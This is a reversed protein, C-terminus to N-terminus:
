RDIRDALPPRRGRADPRYSWAFLWLAAREDEGPGDACEILEAQVEALSAGQDRRIAIEDCLQELLM